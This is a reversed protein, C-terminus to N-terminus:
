HETESVDPVGIPAVYEAGVVDNGSPLKM